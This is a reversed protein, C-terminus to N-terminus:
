NKSPYHLVNLLNSYMRTVISSLNECSCNWGRAQLTNPCQSTLQWCCSIVEDLSTNRSTVLGWAEEVTENTDFAIPCWNNIYISGKEQM